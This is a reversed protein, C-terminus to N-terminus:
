AVGALSEAEPHRHHDVSSLVLRQDRLTRVEPATRRRRGEPDVGDFVQGNPEVGLQQRAAGVRYSPVKLAEDVLREAVSQRNLPSDVGGRGTLTRETSFTIRPLRGATCSTIPLRISESVSPTESSASSEPM